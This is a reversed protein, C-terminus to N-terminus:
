QSGKLIRSIMFVSPLLQKIICQVFEEKRAEVYFTRKWLKDWSKRKRLNEWNKRNWTILLRSRKWRRRGWQTKHTRTKLQKKSSKGRPSKSPRLLGPPRWTKAEESVALLVFRAFKVHNGKSISCRPWVHSGTVKLTRSMIITYDAALHRRLRQNRFNVM